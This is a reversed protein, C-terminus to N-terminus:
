AFIDTPLAAPATARAKVPAPISAVPSAEGVKARLKAEYQAVLREFALLDDELKQIVDDDREIRIIQSLHPLDAVWLHLDIWKAGLLWMAGNCQDVYASIDGDVVATFLTDSSVM